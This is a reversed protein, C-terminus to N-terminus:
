LTYPLTQSLVSLGTTLGKKNLIFSTGTAIVVSDSLTGPGVRRWNTGDNYYQRWAGAVFIQIVDASASAGSAWGPIANIGSNGLTIDAPWSNSVFTVGSNSVGAQRSLTPARGLLTLSLPTAALRTYILGTDPRIPVNNSVTGPGVRVWAAAATSYFYQRWAGSVFLQAVDADGTGTGGQVSTTAPTGLLSSLTDCPFVSYTDTGAVIGLSTLNTQGAEFSDLTVTTTTNPSVSSILFIRGKATGSTIQVVYPSAAVSLDGAVWGANSNTITNTGVGTIIGLAVGSISATGLLPFSLVTTTKTSGTGAAATVTVFGVPDTVVSQANASLGIVTSFFISKLFTSLLKM